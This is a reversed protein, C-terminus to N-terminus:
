LATSTDLQGSGHKNEKASPAKAKKASKKRQVRASKKAERERSHFFRPRGGRVVVCM